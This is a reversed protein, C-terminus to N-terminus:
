SPKALLEECNLKEQLKTGVEKNPGLHTKLFAIREIQDAIELSKRLTTMDKTHPESFTFHAL